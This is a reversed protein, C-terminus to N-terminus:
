QLPGAQSDLAGSASVYIIRARVAQGATDPAQGSSDTWAVVFSDDLAAVSPDIQDLMTTTPVVFPVGVLDGTPSIIQGFVGCGNGDGNTQCAHWTLLIMGDRRAAMGFSDTSDFDSGANTTVVTAAGMLAGTSSVKYYEIRGPGATGSSSEFRFAAIWGTGLPAFRAAVISDGAAATLLIGDSTTFTNVPNAIRVHYTTGIRYGYITSPGNTSVTSGFASMAAPSVTVPTSVISCDPKIVAARILDNPTMFTTWTVAFNGNSLPAASVVSTSPDPSISVQNGPSAGNSDIARCAIGQLATADNDFNWVAVTSTGSAAVAPSTVFSTLDTSLNFANTGAALTSSLPLGTNDFRRGFMNCPSDCNDRFAITFHNDATAAVQFGAALFNQNLLQDMAFDTNVVFDVGDLMVSAESDGFSASSSGLAVLTGADDTADISITYDGSTGAASQVSFTAPLSQGDLSLNDTQSTENDALTIKLQTPGHVNPRADVTVITYKTADKCAGTALISLAALATVM